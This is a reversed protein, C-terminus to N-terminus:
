SGSLEVYTEPVAGVIVTEAILLEGMATEEWQVGAIVGRLPIEIQLYIQHRTQDLGVSEFTHRLEGRM